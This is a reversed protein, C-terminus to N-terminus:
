RPTISSVSMGVEVKLASVPFTWFCFCSARLPAPLFPNSDVVSPLWLGAGGFGSPYPLASAFGTPTPIM